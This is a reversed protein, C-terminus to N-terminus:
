PMKANQLVVREVGPVDSMLRAFAMVAAADNRNGRLVITGDQWAVGIQGFRADSKQVRDIAAPVSEARATTVTTPEEPGADLPVPALLAARRVPLSAPGIEKAPGGRDYKALMGTRDAAVLADTPPLRDPTKDPLIFLPPLPRMDKALYLENRVAQVGRVDATTKLARRMQDSTLLPGWLTAVGDRVSVGVNLPAMEDDAALARRVRLLVQLDRATPSPPIATAPQAATTVFETASAARPSVALALGLLAGLLPRYFHSLSMDGEAQELTFPELGLLLAAVLRM